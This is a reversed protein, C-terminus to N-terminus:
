QVNAESAVIIKVVFYQAMKSADNHVVPLGFPPDVRLVHGAECQLSVLHIAFVVNHFMDFTVGCSM